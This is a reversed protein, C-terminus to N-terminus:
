KEGECRAKGNRIECLKSFSVGRATTWITGEHDQIPRSVFFGSLEPYQTLDGNKWSALGNTTGIWLTGDSAAFLKRVNNSPLSQGHPSQWPVARVGDFRQLGFGTALWLYGDPTQAIDLIDGKVLGEQNRWSTHAYQSVDLAPNLAFICTCWVLCLGVLTA